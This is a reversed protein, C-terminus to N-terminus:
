NTSWLQIFLIEKGNEIKPFIYKVEYGYGFNELNKFTINGKKMVGSRKGDHRGKVWGIQIYQDFRNGCLKIVEYLTM